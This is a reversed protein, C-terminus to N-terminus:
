QKPWIMRNSDPTYVAFVQFDGNSAQVVDLATDDMGGLWVYDVEGPQEEIGAIELKQLEPPFPGLGFNTPPNKLYYQTRQIWAQVDKDTLSDVTNKPPIWKNQPTL